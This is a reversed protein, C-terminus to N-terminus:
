PHFPFFLPIVLTAAVITLLTLPGGVRLFDAFRYGGPGFIFLNTQYGVPTLYSTSAGLMVTIVFPLPSVDLGAATAIAIPTLVVAAANNSIVSTLVTTLVFFAALMGHLGLSATANLLANALFTATGTELMALGLPIISGLLVLVMWDVDDYAEEITLCGSLVMAVVGLMAAVLIPLVNLAALLVVSATIALALPLKRTRRPPVAVTGLLMLDHGEHIRQLEHPTGRVLLLDGAQLPIDRMRDRLATGHRQIGLVPVGFRHRFNLQRVSRGTMRSRPPVLLEALHPANEPSDTAAVPFDAEPTALRLHVEQEIRALETVAGRVLLVDLAEIRTTADVTYQRVGDREVGIV